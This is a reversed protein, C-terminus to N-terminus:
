MDKRGGGVQSQEKTASQPDLTLTPEDEEGAQSQEEFECEEGTNGDEGVQSQEEAAFQSLNAEPFRQEVRRGWRAKDRSAVNRLRTKTRGWGDKNRSPLNNCIHM